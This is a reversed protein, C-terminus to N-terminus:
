LFDSQSLQSTIASITSLATARTLPMIKKDDDDFDGLYEQKFILPCLPAQTIEDAIHTPLTLFEELTM